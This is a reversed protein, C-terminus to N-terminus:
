RKLRQRVAEFLAVAAAVSANLSSVGGLMPIKLLVDCHRRSNLRLGDGESGIVLAVNGQLDARYLDVSDVEGALGYVWIGESKLADLTRSINTVQCLALHSLAGAAAKEVVATVPCARDKPVIVGQCGAADANRLLAGLNHPDTIGDLVLFLAPRDTERWRALLDELATYAFSAVRLLIGQHHPHGALRTLESREEERVAVGAARAARVVEELRPSRGTRVVLVELAGRRSGALAERVPNVGYIWEAM